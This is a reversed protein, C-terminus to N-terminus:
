GSANSTMPRFYPLQYGGHIPHFEVGVRLGVEVDDVECGIINSLLHWGEDMNVIVPVYPVEFAPMQPRWVATWSYIEGTGASKEWGLARSTCQSCIYAPTHTAHGCDACRQFLLEGRNCGDWYPQSLPSPHPLPIAGRQPELM